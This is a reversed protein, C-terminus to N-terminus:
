YSVFFQEKQKRIAALISAREKVSIAEGLYVFSQCSVMCFLVFFAKKM